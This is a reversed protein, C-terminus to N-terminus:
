IKIFLRPDFNQTKIIITDGNIKGEYKRINYMLDIGLLTNKKLTKLPTIANTYIDSNKINLNFEISGKDRKLNTIKARFFGPLYGERAEDFDDSTGYYFVERGTFEIYHNEILDDTNHKYNYRYIGEFKVTENIFTKNILSDEKKSFIQEQYPDSGTNASTIGSVWHM